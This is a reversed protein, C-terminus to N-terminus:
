FFHGDKDPDLSNAERIAEQSVVVCTHIFFNGLM